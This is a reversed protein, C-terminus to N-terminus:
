SSATGCNFVGIKNFQIAKTFSTNWIFFDERGLIGKIAEIVNPKEVPYSNQRNWCIYLEDDQFHNDVAQKVVDYKVEGHAGCYRWGFNEDNPWILKSRKKESVIYLLKSDM